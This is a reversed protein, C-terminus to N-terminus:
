AEDFVISYTCDPDGALRHETRTITADPLVSGMARCEVECIGPHRVAVSLLPCHRLTLSAPGNDMVELKPFYGYREVLDVLELLREPRSLSRVADSATIVQTEVLRELVREIVAADEAEIASLLENAVAAYLQPFLREGNKTLRFVHRPRGPGNRVRVYTVLGQAELALLHSRVAGPSLFTEGALEETTAEGVNKIAVLLTQRTSSLFELSGGVSQEAM